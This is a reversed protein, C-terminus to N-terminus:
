LLRPPPTTLANSKLTSSELGLGKTQSPLNYRSSTRSHSWPVNEDSETLKLFDTLFEMCSFTLPDADVSGRRLLAHAVDGPDM